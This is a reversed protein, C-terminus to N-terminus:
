EFVYLYISSVAENVEVTGQIILKLLLRTENVKYFFIFMFTYSVHDHFQLM